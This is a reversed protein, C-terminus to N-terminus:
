TVSAVAPEGAPGASGQCAFLGFSLLFAMSLMSIMKIQKKM